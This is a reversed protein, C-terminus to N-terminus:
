SELPATALAGTSLLEAIATEPMGLIDGLVMDNHEGFCPAARAVKGPTRDLYYALTPYNHTGAERHRLAQIFGTELLTEDTAIDKADFVPAAAIGHAQLQRAAEGKSFQSTWAEIIPDLVARNAVRDEFSAFKDSEALEPRGILAALARWQEDTEVALAVWEDDGATPYADHPAAYAVANGRPQWFDGGDAVNLVQEGIWHGASETQPITVHAGEGTVDRRYLAILTAAVATLGGIPDVYPVGTLKPKGDGYGMMSSMGSAAEMTKGMGQHYSHPGGPGFAPMEVVIIRPNVARLTEYNVDLRDLVGPAFNSVLIDSVRALALFVDRAGEVKLDLGISLKGQAQTNFAVNRNFPREGPDSDPYLQPMHVVSTGRFTDNHSPADVKIVQAGLYALSRGALPGAWAATMDIVRLGKLPGEDDRTHDEQKSPSAIDRTSEERRPAHANESAMLVWMREINEAARVAEDGSVLPPSPEVGVYPIDKLLFPPALASEKVGEPTTTHRLLERAEWQPSVILRDLPEIAEACIRCHQVAEALDEATFELAKAQLRQKVEPWLATRSAPTMLDNERSWEGLEFVDMMKDFNRVPWAIMWADSCELLLEIGTHPARTPNQGNYSYHTVTSQQIAATSEFLNARVVQGEGSSVRELLAAVASAFAQTGASYYARFGVGYLPRNDPDGTSHMTGSFAQHIMESGRWNRYAGIDPFESIRCDVATPPLDFELPTGEDRIVVDALEALHKVRAVDETSAADCSLSLKGQSLHRFLSSRTLGTGEPLFPPMSRTPTGNVPEVLVTSAGYSAFLKACYQGAVGTSLDLVRLGALAPESEKSTADSKADWNRGVADM